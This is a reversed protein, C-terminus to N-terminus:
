VHARGIEKEIFEIDRAKENIPMVEDDYSNTENILMIEDDHSVEEDTAKVSPILIMMLVIVSLLLICKKKM